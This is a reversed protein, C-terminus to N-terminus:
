VLSVKVADMVPVDVFMPDGAIRAVGGSARGIMPAAAVILVVHVPRVATVLGHRVVIVAVEQDRAVQVVRVTRMAVIVPRNLDGSM